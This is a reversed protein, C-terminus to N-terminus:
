LEVVLGDCPLQYITRNCSHHSFQIGGRSDWRYLSTVNFFYEWQSGCVTRPRARCVTRCVYWSALVVVAQVFSTAGAVLSLSSM